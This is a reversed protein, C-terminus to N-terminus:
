FQEVQFEGGLGVPPTDDGVLFNSSLSTVLCFILLAEGPVVM